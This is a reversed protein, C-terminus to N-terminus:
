RAPCETAPWQWLAPCYAHRAAAVLNRFHGKLRAEKHQVGTNQEIAPKLTGKDTLDERFEVYAEEDAKHGLLDMPDLGLADFLPQKAQVEKLPIGGLLHAGCM